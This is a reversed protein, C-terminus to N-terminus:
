VTCLTFKDQIWKDTLVRVVPIDFTVNPAIGDCAIIEAVLEQQELNRIAEEAGGLMGEMLCDPNEGCIQRIEPPALLVDPEGPFPSNCSYLDTFSKAGYVFLSEAPTKVCHHTTCYKYAGQGTTNLPVVQGTATTWDDNRNGNPTGFLGVTNSRLATDELALCAKIDMMCGWTGKPSGEVRIRIATTPTRPTTSINYFQIDTGGDPNIKIAYSAGSLLRDRAVPQLVGDFRINAACSNSLMYTTPSSATSPILSVQIRPVGPIAPYDIAIAKTVSASNSPSKEFLGQIQLKGPSKVLVFAGTGMCNYTRRDFTSFHPDGYMHGVFGKCQGLLDANGQLPTPPVAPARLAAKVTTNYWSVDFSASCANGSWKCFAAKACDGGSYTSCLSSPHHCKLTPTAGLGPTPACVLNGCCDRHDVCDM